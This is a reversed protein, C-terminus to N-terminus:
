LMLLWGGLIAVACIILVIYHLIDVKVVQESAPEPTFSTLILNLYFYGGIATSILGFMVLLPYQAFANYFLLSKAFFGTFPPIGTLSLLAFIFLVGIIPYKRSIGKLYTIKDKENETTMAITILAIVSFGYGVMFVFLESASEEDIALLSFLAFATHTISSYAILRKFRIQNIAALYGVFLSLIIAMYVLGSWYVYIDIFVSSFFKYFTFIAAVKIVSAMFATVNDPSGEYVDPAWFHFPVAGVKFLFSATIFFAGVILMPKSYEGSAIIGKIEVLDFSGTAGYMLAIGMLLFCTFFSGTFFYKIAAEISNGNNRKSGALVYLPISMIELGLFFMSLDNFGILCIAGCLSFLFLSM